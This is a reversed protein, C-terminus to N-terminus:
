YMSMRVNKLHPKPTWISKPVVIQGKVQGQSDLAM